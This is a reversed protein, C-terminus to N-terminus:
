QILMIFNSPERCHCQASGDTCAGKRSAKLLKLSHTPVDM